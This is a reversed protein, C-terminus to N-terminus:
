LIILCVCCVELADAKTIDEGDSESNKGVPQSVNGTFSSVAFTEPPRHDINCSSLEAMTSHFCAYFTYVFPSLQM